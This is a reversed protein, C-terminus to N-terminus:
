GSKSYLDRWVMILWIPRGSLWIAKSQDGVSYALRPSGTRVAFDYCHEYIVKWKLLPRKLLLLCPLSISQRWNCVTLEHNNVDPKNWDFIRKVMFETSTMPGRAEKAMGVDIPDETSATHWIPGPDLQAGDRTSFLLFETVLGRPLWAVDWLPM